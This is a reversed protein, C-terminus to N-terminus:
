LKIFTGVVVDTTTLYRGLKINSNHYCNINENENGPCRYFRIYYVGEDYNSVDLQYVSTAPKVDFVKEDIFVGRVDYVEFKYTKFDPTTIEINLYDNHVIPNPYIKNIVIDGVMSPGCYNKIETASAYLDIYGDSTIKGRLDPTSQANNLIISKINLAIQDPNSYLNKLTQACAIDYLFGIAGVVHPTAASTGSFANYEDGIFTTYINDGPAAIDVYQSGYGGQLIKEKNINTVSIINEQPCTSPMDGTENIDKNYNTVACAALVGVDKLKGFVACMGPIDDPFSNGFGWSCNVAVVFDGDAGGTENYTKRREYIYSLAEILGSAHEAPGLNMIKCNWMIGAVGIGNNGVGGIIGAIATGHNRVLKLYATDEEFNYVNYDDIYTNHDDDIGNGPIEGKNVWINETLDEHGIDIGEDIVALVITDGMSTIGDFEFNWAEELGMAGISWMKEIGPDNPLNRLEVEPDVYVNISLRDEITNLAEYQKETLYLQYLGAEPFIPDPLPFGASRLRSNLNEQNLYTHIITSQPKNGPNISRQAIAGAFCFIMFLVAFLRKM